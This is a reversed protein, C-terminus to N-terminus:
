LLDCLLFCIHELSRRQASSLAVFQTPVIPSSSWGVGGLCNLGSVVGLSLKLLLARRPLPVNAAFDLLLIRSAEPRLPLLDASGARFPLSGSVPATPVQGLTKFYSGLGCQGRLAFDSLCFLVQHDSQCLHGIRNLVEHPDASRSQV